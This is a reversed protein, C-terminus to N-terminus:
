RVPVSWAREDWRIWLRGESVEITLREVPSPNAAPEMPVRAFDRAPNYQTGFIRTASNIILTAAGDASPLLWLTYSGAPVPTDGLRLDASTTLGTAMDAGLRWVRDWPVVEGWVVRGRKAPRSYDVALDTAGARGRATDRPSLAGMALGRQDAEAWAKAIAEVDIRPVREVKYRYTTGTWDAHMLTGDPAFKYGHRAVGFYDAEASDPGVLWVKTNGPAMQMPLMTLFRLAPPEGAAARARAQAFGIEYILYTVGIYPLLPGPLAGNPAPVRQTEPQGNRLTERIVSDRRFTMSGETATTRIPTGDARTTRVDYRTPKGAADLTMSWHIIRTVPTRTVVMGELRDGQRTFREVHVTDRGLTAVFGGSQAALPGLGPVALGLGAGALLAAPGTCFRLVRRRTVLM